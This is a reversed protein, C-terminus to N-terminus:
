NLNDINLGKLVPKAPNEPTHLYAWVKSFSIFSALFEFIKRAVVRRTWVSVLAQYVRDLQSGPADLTVSRPQTFDHQLLGSHLSTSRQCAKM